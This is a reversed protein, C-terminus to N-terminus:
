KIKMETVYKNRFRYFPFILELRHGGGGTGVGFRFFVGEPLADSTSDKIQLWTNTKLSDKRFSM